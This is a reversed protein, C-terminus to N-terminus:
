FSALLKIGKLESSHRHLMDAPDKTAQLLIVPGKSSISTTNEFYLESKRRGPPCVLAQLKNCIKLQICSGVPLPPILHLTLHRSVCM